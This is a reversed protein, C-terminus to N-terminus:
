LLSKRRKFFVYYAPLGLAVVGVGLFSQKPNAAGLLVLLVLTLLLFVVPTFPYGPTLYESVPQSRRLVFLAAVTLAIFIVVVFIFYSVIENFTGLLALLSALVSQLAIARAPTGFEPHIFAIAPIFLGDRAMAFYVRPSTLLLSALSGLVAVIVMMSFIQGGIQGFLVEGAQAAFTEGSTVKEL